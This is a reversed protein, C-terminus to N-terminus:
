AFWIKVEGHVAGEHVLEDQVVMSQVLGACIQAGDGQGGRAGGQVLKTGDGKRCWGHVFKHAMEPRLAGDGEGGRAGSRCCRKCWGQVLETGDGGWQV